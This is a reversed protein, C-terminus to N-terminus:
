CPIAQYKHNAKKYAMKLRLQEDIRADRVLSQGPDERMVGNALYADLLRNPLGAEESSQESASDLPLNGRLEVDQVLKLLKEFNNETMSQLPILPLSDIVKKKAAIVAFAAVQFNSKIAM